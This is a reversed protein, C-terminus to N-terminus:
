AIIEVVTLRREGRPLNVRVTEGVRAKMLSEGIPSTSTVERHSSPCDADSEALSSVIRYTEVKGTAEDKIRVIAGLFVMDKPLEDKQIVQVTAIRVELERIRLNNMSKDERAAHYDSNERLDGHGRAEAIRETLVRDLAHLEILLRALKDKDERTVFEM